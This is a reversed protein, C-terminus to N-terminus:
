LTKAMDIKKIHQTVKELKTAPTEHSIMAPFMGGVKSKVGTFTLITGLM